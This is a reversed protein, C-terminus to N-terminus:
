KTTSNNSGDDEDEGKKSYKEEFKEKGMIIRELFMRLFVCLGWPWLIDTLIISEILIWTNPAKREPHNKIWRLEWYLSNILALLTIGLYVLLFTKM